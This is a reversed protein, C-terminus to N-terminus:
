APPLSLALDSDRRVLWQRRAHDPAAGDWRLWKAGPVAVCVISGLVRWGMREHMTLSAHNTDHIFGQIARAGHVEFMERLANQFLKVFVGSARADLRAAGNFSWFTAPDLAWRACSQQDEDFPTPGGHFWTHGLINAGDDGLQAVYALDGRALRARVLPEPTADISALAAIDPASDGGRRVVLDRMGRFAKPPQDLHVIMRRTVSVAPALGLSGVGRQAIRLLKDAKPNDTRALEDRLGAWAKALRAM